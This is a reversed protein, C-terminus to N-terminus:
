KFYASILNNLILLLIFEFRIGSDKKVREGKKVGM